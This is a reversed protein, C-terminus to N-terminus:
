LPTYITMLIFDSCTANKKNEYFLPSVATSCSVYPFLTCGLWAMHPPQQALLQRSGPLQQHFLTPSASPCRDERSVCRLQDGRRADSEHGVSHPCDNESPASMFGKMSHAKPDDGTTIPSSSGILGSM